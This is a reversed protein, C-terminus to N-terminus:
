VLLGMEGGNNKALKVLNTKLTRPAEALFEELSLMGDGNVDARKFIGNVQKEKLWKFGLSSLAASLEEKDIYGSRDADVYKFLQQLVGQGFASESTGVFSKILDSHISIAKARVKNLQEQGLITSAAMVIPSFVGEKHAANAKKKPVSSKKQPAVPAVPAVPPIDMIVESAESPTATVDDLINTTASEETTSFLPRSRSITNRTSTNVVFATLSHAASLAMIAVLATQKNKMM